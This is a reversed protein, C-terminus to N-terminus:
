GEYEVAVAEDGIELGRVRASERVTAGETRAHDLLFADLRRRQTMRVLTKPYRYDFSRGLRYSFRVTDVEHEVMPTLDLPAAQWARGTLGGGCPKDRPFEARDFVVVRAGNRALHFAATSGSPGGGVIAVDFDAPRTM